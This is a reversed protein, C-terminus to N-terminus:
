RGLYVVKIDGTKAFAVKLEYGCDWKFFVKGTGLLGIRADVCPEGCCCAPICVPVQVLCCTCPDKVLLVTEIKPGCDSCRKARCADVYKICPNYCCVPGCCDAKHCRDCAVAPSANALGVSAILGFLATWALRKM